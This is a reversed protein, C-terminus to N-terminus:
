KEQIRQEMWYTSEVMRSKELRRNEGMGMHAGFVWYGDKREVLYEKPFLYKPEDVKFTELHACAAKMWPQNWVEPFNSLLHVRQILAQGQKPNEGLNQIGPLDLKWCVAKSSYSGGPIWFYGCHVPIEKYPPGFLWDVVTCIKERFQQDVTQQFFTSLLIYDHLVPTHIQGDAYLDPDIIWPQWDKPVGPLKSGDIYIDYRQQKTFEYLLELRNERVQQVAPDSYGALALFAAPILEYDYYSYLKKFSLGPEREKAVQEALRQRYVACREDLAPMGARLGLQILKGMINEFRYDHSGHINGVMGMSARHDLQGLWYQVEPVTVLMEQLDFAEEQLRYKQLLNYRIPIEANELLWTNM